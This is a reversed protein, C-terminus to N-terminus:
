LLFKNARLGRLLQLRDSFHVVIRHRGKEVQLDRDTALALQATAKVATELKDVRRTLEELSAM